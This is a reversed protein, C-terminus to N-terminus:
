AVPSSSAGTAEFQARLASLADAMYGPEFEIYHADPLGLAFPSHSAVIVQHKQAVEPRRLLTWLRSQWVLSFNAEPEDLLVSPQGRETNAQLRKEVIEIAQVWQDNVHKKNMTYPISTPSASKGMLVALASDTRSLSLQGHSRRASGMAEALGREMFDDDFSGGVLGVTKRPDSYVVPQGDHRVELGIKDKMEGKVGDRQRLAAFMDVTSSIHDQTVTSVGGQAAALSQALINLVTSKGCGNPGFLVNLGPKFKLVKRGKFFAVDKAYGFLASQSLGKFVISDFM